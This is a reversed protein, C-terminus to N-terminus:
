RALARSSAAHLTAVAFKPACGRDLADIGVSALTVAARGCGHALRECDDQPGNALTVGSQVGQRGSGRDVWVAVLLAAVSGVAQVWAAAVTGTATWDINAWTWGM